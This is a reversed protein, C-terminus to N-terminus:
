INTWPPLLFLVFVTYRAGPAAGFLSSRGTVQPLHSLPTMGRKMFPERIPDFRNM